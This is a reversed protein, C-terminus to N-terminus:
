DIAIALAMDYRSLSGPFIYRADGRNIQIDPHPTFRNQPCRYDSVVQVTITTDARHSSLELLRDNFPSNKCVFATGSEVTGPFGVRVERGVPHFPIANKQELERLSAVVPLRACVEAEEIWQDLSSRSIPQCLEKNLATVLDVDHIHYYQKTATWRQFEDRSLENEFISDLLAEVTTQRERIVRVESGNSLTVTVSTPKVFVVVLTTIFVIALAAPWSIKNAM